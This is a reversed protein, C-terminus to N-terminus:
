FFWVLFIGYQQPQAKNQRASHGWTSKLISSIKTVLYTLLASDLLHM